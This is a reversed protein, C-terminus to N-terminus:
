HTSPQQLPDRPGMDSFLDIADFRGDMWRLSNQLVTRVDAGRAGKAPWVVRNHAFIEGLLARLRWAALRRQSFYELQRVGRSSM